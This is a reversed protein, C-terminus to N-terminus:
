PLIERVEVYCERINGYSSKYNYPKTDPRRRYVYNKGFENRAYYNPDRDAVKQYAKRVEDVNDVLKIITIAQHEKRKGECDSFYPPPPYYGKQVLPSQPSEMLHRYPAPLNSSSSAPLICLLQVFPKSPSGMEFRSLHTLQKQTLRSLYDSFDVMLPAYYWPYYWEWSPLGQSYYQFVWLLTKLYDQCMQEIKQADKTVHIKSKLYYAERFGPFNLGSRSVFRELTKNRFVENQPHNRVFRNFDDVENLLDDPEKQALYDVFKQFSKLDLQGNATLRIRHEIIIETMTGFGDKLHIFSQIMPLFDNGVFFGLFILDDICRNIEEAKNAEITSIGMFRPLVQAIGSIDIHYYFNCMDTDARLLFMRPIKVALTLFLLDGDEGVIMHKKDKEKQPLARIYDMIKHEGEGPVQSSSFVIKMGKWPGNLFTRIKLHIFKTLELSFITGPSIQTSDFSPPVLPPETPQVKGTEYAEKEEKRVCANKEEQHHEFCVSGGSKALFRRVRQQNQKALPAPGDLAINLVKPNYMRVIEQIKNWFLEFAQLRRQENTLMGYPDLGMRKSPGYNFSVQTAPHIIGNADIHIYDM